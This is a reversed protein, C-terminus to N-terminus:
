KFVARMECDEPAGWTAVLVRGGAACVRRLERLAGVPEGAYQISNAALVADFAGDAYPLEELDGTRFDGAPVRERAIAILAPAADLGSITAGRQAALACAGGAGCGADLLRTHAAVGLADLLAAWLPAVTPEQIESWDAAAAGWLEGQVAASGM